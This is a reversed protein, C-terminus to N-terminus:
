EHARNTVGSGLRDGEPPAVLRRQAVARRPGAVGAVAVAWGAPGGSCVGLEEVAPGRIQARSYLKHEVKSYVKEM